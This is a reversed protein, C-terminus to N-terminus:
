AKIQTLSYSVKICLSYTMKICEMSRFLWYGYHQRLREATEGRKLSYCFLLTDSITMLCGKVLGFWVLLDSFVQWCFIHYFCLHKM